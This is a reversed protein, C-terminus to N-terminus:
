KKWAQLKAEAETYPWVDGADIWWQGGQGSEEILVYGRPDVNIINVSAQSKGIRCEGSAVAADSQKGVSDIDGGEALKSLSIQTDITKCVLPLDARLQLEEARVQQSFALMAVLAASTISSPLLLRQM